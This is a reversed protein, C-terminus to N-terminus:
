NSIKKTATATEIEEDGIKITAYKNETIAKIQVNSKEKSISMIYTPIETDGTFNNIIDKGDVYIHEANANDSM